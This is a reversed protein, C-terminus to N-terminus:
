IIENRVEKDEAQLATIKGVILNHYEPKVIDASVISKLEEIRAKICEQIIYTQLTNIYFTKNGVIDLIQKIEKWHAGFDLESGAIDKSNTM